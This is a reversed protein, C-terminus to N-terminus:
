HFTGTLAQLGLSSGAVLAWLIAGMLLPRVGAKRMEGLDLTLGIAALATTILFAGLWGLGGHWGAPILGLSNLAAAAVFGIIFLPVVKRWPVSTHDGATRRRRNHLISLVIVIPVIMLSRTLKVVLAYSGSGQGYSYATAVVSSMDNVATGAWLGFSRGSMHMLHGLVPFIIVAAINFTFITGIAYAVDREKPKIVATTAAIASAGCIGTGVGILTTADGDIHLLRGVVAAGVLAVTLTGIMVPFSSGGVQAVQHLSLGTGLVVIALQLLPKAAFRLGPDLSHALRSDDEPATHLVLHGIVAGLVLGFVPGGIVPVWTGLVTAVGALALAAVLGPVHGRPGPPAAAPDDSPDLIDSPTATITM